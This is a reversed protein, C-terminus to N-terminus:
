RFCGIGAMEALALTQTGNDCRWQLKITHSVGAPLAASPIIAMRSPTDTAAGSGGATSYAVGDVLFQLEWAQPPTFGFYGQKASCWVVLAGTATPTYTYSIADQWTLLGATGTLTGAMAAGFTQTVNNSLIATTAVKNSNITGGSGVADDVDSATVSGVPDTANPAGLTAGDAGNAGPSFGPLLIQDQSAQTVMPEILTVTAAGASGSTFYYELQAKVAGAPVVVIDGIPTAWSKVGTTSAVTPASVQSGAANYFHIVVSHTGSMVGTAEIAAQVAVREGATVPFFGPTLSGISATQGSGSASIGMQLYRRNLYTGTVLGTVIGSPNFLNGWYTAWGAEFKSFPVRNAGGTVNRKNSELEDLRLLLATRTSSVANFQSRWTAGIITTNGSLVNWSVPTNLTALYATLTSVASNYATRETTIGEAAARTDIGGQEATIAAYEKIAIPKEGPTLLGDSGIESLLALASNAATLGPDVDYAIDSQDHPEWTREAQVAMRWYPAQVAVQTVDGIVPLTTGDSRLTAAPTGIGIPVVFLAGLWSVGAAANVSAAIRQIIDRLTIQEGQYLSLNWPRAIDLAAISTASVKSYYGRIECLRRILAGPKRVWGDTGAADGRLLYSVLGQLKAGHRVLGLANCTGWGGAPISAAILAALSAYNGTAIGFRVLRELATDIGQVPGYGSLQLVMNASDIMLGPAYRPQGLSLPKPTGKQAAEGEIGGVGLYLDLLPEDLWRDDVAFEITASLNSIAPQATVIGDFRLTYAGFADGLQGTWIRLRANALILRSFTAFGEIAIDLSSSPTEIRGDFAGSFFDYRLSPLRDVAPWWVQGDLHCVAPDDHSALRLTSIAAAVPDWADIQIITALM